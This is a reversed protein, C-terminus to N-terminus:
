GVDGGDISEDKILNSFEEALSNNNTQSILKIFKGDKYYLIVPLKKIKNEGSLKFTENLERIYDKNLMMDTVDLYYTNNQLNNNIIIKKLEKEVVRNEKSKVFSIIIFDDSTLEGITNNIDEYQISGVVRTKTLVSKSLKNDRYIGALKVALLCGLFILIMLLVYNILKRIYNKESKKLAM